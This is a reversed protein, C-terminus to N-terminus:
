PHKKRHRFISLRNNKIYMNEIPDDKLVPAPVGAHFCTMGTFVRAEDWLNEDIFSQLLQAGGEIIVSQLKKEYLHRVIKKLPEDNFDIKKFEMHHSTEDRIENFIFTSSSQDYIHFDQNTKLQKDILIRVPSKGYWERNTLRPNDKEATNRGVMIAAEESRWKHVLKKSFEDTIWTPKIPAHYEREYDIFGDSTQAWKLIIYPRKKEHFTFFRKNLERGELELVATMVEVGAKKLREIGKGSVKENTDINSIVARPIKSQVILDACPPQLGHHACPELNVYITSDKLLSKDKVARIANKEAHYDGYKIHFGEGIINDHVVIVSGALPNPMVNGLGQRALEFCRRMYINDKNRLM